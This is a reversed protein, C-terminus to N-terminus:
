KVIEIVTAELYYLDDKRLEGLKIRRKEKMPNNEYGNLVFMINLFSAKNEAFHAIIYDYLISVAKREKGNLKKSGAEPLKYAYSDVEYTMSKGDSMADFYFSEMSTETPYWSINGAHVGRDGISGTILPKDSKLYIYETM